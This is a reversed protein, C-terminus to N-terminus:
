KSKFSLLLSEKHIQAWTNQRVAWAVAMQEEDRKNVTLIVKCERDVREKISKRIM